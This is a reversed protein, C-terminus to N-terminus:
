LPTSGIARIPNTWFQNHIFTTSSHLFWLTWITAFVEAKLTPNFPISTIPAILNFSCSIHIINEQPLRCFILLPWSTRTTTATNLKISATSDHSASALRFKAITSSCPEWGTIMGTPFCFGNSRATKYKQNSRRIRRGRGSWSVSRKWPISLCRLAPEVVVLLAEFRTRWMLLVPRKSSSSVRTRLCISSQTELLRMERTNLIPKTSELM